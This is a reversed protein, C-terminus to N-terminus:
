EQLMSPSLGIKAPISFRCAAGGSTHANTRRHAQAWIHIRDTALSPKSKLSVLELRDLLELSRPVTTQISNGSNRTPSSSTQHMPSYPSPSTTQNLALVPTMPTYPPLMPAMPPSLILLLNVTMPVPTTARRVITTKLCITPSKTTFSHTQDITRQSRPTIRINNLPAIFCTHSTQHNSRTSSRLGEGQAIRGHDIDFSNCM